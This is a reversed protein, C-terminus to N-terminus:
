YFFFGAFNVFLAGYFYIIHIYKGGGGSDSISPVCKKVVWEGKKPLVLALLALFGFLIALRLLLPYHGQGREVGSDRLNLNGPIRGPESHERTHALGTELM